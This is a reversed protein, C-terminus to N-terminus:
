PTRGRAVVRFPPALPSGDTEFLYVYNETEAPLDFPSDGSSGEQAQGGERVAMECRGLWSGAEPTPIAQDFVNVAGDVATPAAVTATEETTAGPRTWFFKVGPALVELTNPVRARFTLTPVPTPDAAGPEFSCGAFGLLLVLALVLLPALILLSEPM